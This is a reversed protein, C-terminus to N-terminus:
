NWEIKIDRLGFISIKCVNKRIKVLIMAVMIGPEAPGKGEM